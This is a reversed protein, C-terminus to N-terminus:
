SKKYTGANDVFEIIGDNRLVQLQQRIKARIHNNNPHLRSLHTYNM